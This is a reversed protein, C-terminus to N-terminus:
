LKAVIKLTANQGKLETFLAEAEATNMRICGDSAWTGIKDPESTGHIGWLWANDGQLVQFGMWRTGLPNGPAGGAYSKDGPKLANYPPNTAFNTLTFTGEPTVFNTKYDSWTPQPGKTDRGTAVTFHDVLQGDKYHWLHNWEKNVLVFHGKKVGPEPAKLKYYDVPDFSGLQYASFKPSGEKATEVVLLDGEVRVQGGGALPLKKGQVKWDENEQKLYAATRQGLEDAKSIVVYGGTVQVQQEIMLGAAKALDAGLDHKKGIVPINQVAKSVTDAGCGTVMLAVATLAIGITRRM